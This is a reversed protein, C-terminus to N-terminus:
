GQNTFPNFDRCGDDAFCHADDEIHRGEIAFAAALGSVTPRRDPIPPRGIDRVSLLLSAIKMNVEQLDGRPRQCGPRPDDKANVGTPASPGPEIVGGGVKDVRRQAMNQTGMDGLLALQHIALPHAEIEAM